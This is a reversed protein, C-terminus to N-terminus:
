VPVSHLISAPESPGIPSDSRASPMMEKCTICLLVNLVNTASKECTSFSVPGESLRFRERSLHVSIICGVGM